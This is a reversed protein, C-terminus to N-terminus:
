FSALLPFKDGRGCKPASTCERGEPVGPIEGSHPRGDLRAVTEGRCEEIRVFRHGRTVFNPATVHELHAIARLDVDGSASRPGRAGGKRLPGRLFLETTEHTRRAGKIPNARAVSSLAGRNGGTSTRLIGRETPLASAREYLGGM